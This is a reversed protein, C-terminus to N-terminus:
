IPSNNKKRVKFTKYGSKQFKEFEDQIRLFALMDHNLISEHNTLGSEVAKKLYAYGKNVDEMNSYVCALHFYVEPDDPDLEQAKLLAELAEPIDFNKLFSLGKTKFKHAPSKPKSGYVLKVNEHILKGNRSLDVGVTMMSDMVKTTLLYNVSNGNEKITFHHDTGYVSSKKSVIQGGVIVTEEGLWNNHLEIITQDSKLKLYQM